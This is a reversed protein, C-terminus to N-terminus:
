ELIVNTTKAQIWNPVLEVGLELRGGLMNPLVNYANALTEVKTSVTTVYDRTFVRTKVENPVSASSQPNYDSPNIKGMLYFKTGQYIVGGKGRFDMGSNNKFELAIIVEEDDYSQLVLTSPISQNDTTASLHCSTGVQSDYIFHDEAHSEAGNADVPEFSFGV